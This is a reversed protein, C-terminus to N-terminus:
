SDRVYKSRTVLMNEAITYAFSTLLPVYIDAENTPNEFLKLHGSVLAQMASAAFQDRLKDKETNDIEKEVRRGRWSGESYSPRVQIPFDPGERFKFHNELSAKHDDKSSNKQSSPANDSVQLFDKTVDKFFDPFISADSINFILKEKESLFNGAKIGPLNKLLEYIKM